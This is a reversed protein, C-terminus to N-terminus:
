FLLVVVLAERVGFRRRWAEESGETGGVRWRGSTTCVATAWVFGEGGLRRGAVSVGRAESVVPDTARRLGPTSPM